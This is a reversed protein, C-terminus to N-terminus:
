INVGDNRAWLYLGEDNRVWLEREQDNKLGRPIPSGMGNEICKDLEERNRRIFERMTM